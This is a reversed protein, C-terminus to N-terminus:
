PKVSEDYKRESKIRKESKEFSIYSILMDISPLHPQHLGVDGNARNLSSASAKM